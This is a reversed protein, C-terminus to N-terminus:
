NPTCLTGEFHVEFFTNGLGFNFGMVSHGTGSLNIARIPTLTGTGAVRILDQADLVLVRREDRLYACV